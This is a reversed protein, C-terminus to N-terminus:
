YYCFYTTSYSTEHIEYVGTGQKFEAQFLVNSPCEIEGRLAREAVEQYESWRDSKMANQMYWSNYDAYAGLYQMPQTVVGYVTNPYMSSHVRNVVVAAVLERHRFSTGYNAENYIVSAIIDIDFQTYDFKPELSADYEDEIQQIEALDVIEEDSYPLLEVLELDPYLVSADQKPIEASVESSTSTLQNKTNEEYWWIERCRTIIPDTEPLGMGRVIEAIEEVKMQNDTRGSSVDVVDNSDASASSWIVIVTVAFFILWVLLYMMYYMCKMHKMHELRDM